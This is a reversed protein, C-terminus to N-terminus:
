TENKTRKRPAFLSLSIFNIGAAVVTLCLLEEFKLGFTLLRRTTVDIGISGREGDVFNAVTFLSGTCSNAFGNGKRNTSQDRLMPISSSHTERRRASTTRCFPVAHLRIRVWKFASRKPALQIKTRVVFFPFFYVRVCMCACTMFGSNVSHPMRDYSALTRTFTQIARDFLLLRRSAFRVVFRLLNTM